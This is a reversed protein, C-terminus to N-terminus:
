PLADDLLPTCGSYNTVMDDVTIITLHNKWSLHQQYKNKVHVIHNNFIYNITIHDYIIYIYQFVFTM